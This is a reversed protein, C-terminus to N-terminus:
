LSAGRSIWLCSQNENSKGLDANTIKNLSEYLQATLGNM